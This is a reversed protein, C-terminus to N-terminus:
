RFVSDGIFPFGSSSHLPVWLRHKECEWGLLSTSEVHHVWSLVFILRSCILMM